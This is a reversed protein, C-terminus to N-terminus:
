AGRRARRSLGLAALLALGSLAWTAPEPVAGTNNVRALKYISVQDIVLGTTCYALRRDPGGFPDSQNVNTCTNFDLSTTALPALPLSFNTLINDYLYYSSWAVPSGGSAENSYTGSFAFVFDGVEERLFTISLFGPNLSAAKFLGASSTSGGALWRDAGTAALALTYNVGPALGYGAVLASAEASSEAGNVFGRCADAHGDAGLVGSSTNSVSCATPGANVPVVTRSGGGGSNANTLSRQALVSGSATILLLTAAVILALGPATTRTSKM